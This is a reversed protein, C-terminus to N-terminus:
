TPGLFIDKESWSEFGTKTITVTYTGSPLGTFSFSGNASSKSTTSVANGQNTATVTAEPILAGAADQVVGNITATVSQAPLVGAAVLLFLSVLGLRSIVRSLNSCQLMAKLRGSFVVGKLRM